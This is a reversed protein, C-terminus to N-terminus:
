ASLFGTILILDNGLLFFRLFAKVIRIIQIRYNYIRRIAVAAHNFMGLRAARLLIL